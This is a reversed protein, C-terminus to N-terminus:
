IGNKVEIDPEGERTEQGHISGMAKCFECNDGNSRCDTYAKYNRNYERVSKAAAKFIAETAQFDKTFDNKIATLEDKNLAGSRYCRYVLCMFRFYLRYLMKDSSSIQEPLRDPRNYAARDLFDLM